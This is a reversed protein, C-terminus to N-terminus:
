GTARLGFWYRIWSRRREPETPAPAEAETEAIVVRAREMGAVAEERLHKAKAEIVALQKRFGAHLGVRVENQPAEWQLAFNDIESELELFETTLRGGHTLCAGRLESFAGKTFCQRAKYAPVSAADPESGLSFFRNAETADALVRGMAAELMACFAYGERAVRGRDLRLTTEIQQQAVATQAQGAEVERDASETTARITRWAALVALGGAILTQWHDVLDLLTTFHWPQPDSM